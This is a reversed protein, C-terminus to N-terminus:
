PGVTPLTLLQDLSAAILADAWSSMPQPLPAQVSRRDFTMWPISIPTRIVDGPVIYSPSLSTQSCVEGSSFDSSFGAPAFRAGDTEVDEGSHDQSVLLCRM